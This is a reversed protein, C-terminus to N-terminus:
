WLGLRLRGDAMQGESPLLLTYAVGEKDGARGTRGIRHIYSDISRGADYNVVTKLTKIDLGRAAVDTAVLVHTTGARFSALVAARSGADLDGHIAGARVGQAALEAALEDVRAKTGAFLLVEGADVLTPLHQRLWARKAAEDAVVEVRQSIDENAMGAEGVRIRVPGSLADNALREVKMPMTASFLLLQRDPRIQGLISRIQPEFGMDFMRDAEDLVVYTVRQLNCAKMRVLDILRGPTCVAIEAGAKLERFQQHKPLGGFAACVRLKYGKAFRHTERHIQEALEHTPGVIIAIPGEGKELEQQDMIHVMAPLVFAATKGSGTKAIGLVDRGSLIAPLAQAQIATPEKYGARVIATLLPADFGAQTFTAIPRPADFGSVTLGLSRRRASVEAQSMSTLAPAEVYFDKDFDEYTLNPHDLPALSGVAQKFGSSNELKGGGVGDADSELAAAAAAYVEEDSGDAGAAGSQMAAATVASPPLAGAKKAELFDAAPDLEDFREAASKGAARASPAQADSAKELEKMEAMFADLPDVEEEDAPAM